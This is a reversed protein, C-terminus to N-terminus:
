RGVSNLVTVQAGDPIGLEGFTWTMAKGEAMFAKCRDEVIRRFGVRYNNNTVRDISPEFQAKETCGNSSATITVEPTRAGIEAGLVRPYGGSADFSNDRVDADVILCGSLSACLAALGLGGLVTRGSYGAM